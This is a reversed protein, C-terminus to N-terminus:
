ATELKVIPVAGNDGDHADSIGTSKQATVFNLTSPQVNGITEEDWAVGSAVRLIVMQSSISMLMVYVCAFGMSTESGIGYSVLFAIGSLTYPLVSEAIVAMLAFYVSAYNQGLHEKVMRGHSLMRYCIMATLMATLGVSVSYYALGLQLAAASFFNGGPTSTIWTVLISLVLTAIWLIVPLIIVRYSGCILRCRHIMLADTMLQLLAIAASGFVMYWVTDNTAWYASPGGPFSANELWMKEGFVAQTPIFISTLLMMVTSFAAYFMDHKNRRSKDALLVYMTRFYLVLQVGYLINELNIGVYFSNQFLPGNSSM